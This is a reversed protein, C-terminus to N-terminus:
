AIAELHLFPVLDSMSIIFVPLSFALAIWFKQLMKRYAQEEESTEAGKEPVLPMGCKPCSGPKDQRIEPHMPCTYITGSKHVAELKKLHMGCVPCDGPEPYTKDGECLMTCYYKDKTDKSDKVQHVYKSAESEQHGHHDHGDNNKNQDVPVLHMNCVPCDGPKDYVKDGECKMPCFYKTKVDPQESIEANKM